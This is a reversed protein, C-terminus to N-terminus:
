KMCNDTYVDIATHPYCAISRTFNPIKTKNPGFNNKPTQTFILVFGWLVGSPTIKFHSTLWSKKCVTVTQFLDILNLTKQDAWHQFPGNFLQQYTQYNSTSFQGELEVLMTHAVAISRAQSILQM